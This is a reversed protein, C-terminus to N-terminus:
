AARRGKCRPPGAFHMKAVARASRWPFPRGNASMSDARCISAWCGAAPSRTPTMPNQMPPPNASSDARSAPNEGCGDVVPEQGVVEVRGEFAGAGHDRAVPRLVAAEGAGGRLDLGHESPLASRPSTFSYGSADCWNRLVATFPGRKKPREHADAAEPGVGDGGLVRPPADVREEAFVERRPSAARPPTSPAACGSARSGRSASGYLAPILLLLGMLGGLSTEVFTFAATVAVLALAFWLLPRRGTAGFGVALAAIGAWRIVAEVPHLPHAVGYISIFAALAILAAWTALLAPGQPRPGDVDVRRVLAPDATGAARAAARDAALALLADRAAVAERFADADGGAVDPHTVRARRAFAASVERSSAGPRVGLVDAARAPDM